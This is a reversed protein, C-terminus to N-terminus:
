QAAGCEPCFKVAGQIPKGCEKCFKSQSVPKGCEPCFKGGKVDAGCHPCTFAHERTAFTGDTRTRRGM